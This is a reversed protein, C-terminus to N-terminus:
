AYLSEMLEKELQLWQEAVVPLAHNDEVYRRGAQGLRRRLAPDASIQDVRDAAQRIDHAVFVGPVTRNRLWGRPRAVVPCGCALAELIALSQYETESWCLLCAAQQYQLCRKSQSLGLCLNVREILGLNRATEELKRCYHNDAPAVVRLRVNSDLVSLIKIATAHGKQWEARGVSIVFPSSPAQSNSPSLSIGPHWSITDVPNPITHVKVGLLKALPIDLSRSDSLSRRDYAVVICSVRILTKVMRVLDLARSGARLVSLVPRAQFFVFTGVGHSWLISPYDRSLRNLALQSKTHWGTAVHIKCNPWQSRPLARTLTQIAQTLGGPNAEGPNDILLM